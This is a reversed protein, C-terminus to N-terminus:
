TRECRWSAFFEMQVNTVRGTPHQSVAIGSVNRTAYVFVINQRSM